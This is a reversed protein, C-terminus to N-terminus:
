AVKFILERQPSNKILSRSNLEVVTQRGLFDLLVAIRERASIVRTVVAVFGHFAGEIIKVEDNPVFEASIVHVDASGVTRKLEEITQNPISPWCCGFHVIGRVERAHHVRRLSSREVKAFFYNPFLAETLWM